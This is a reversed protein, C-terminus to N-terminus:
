TNFSGRRRARIREAAFSHGLCIGRLRSIGKNEAGETAFLHRSNNLETSRQQMQLSEAALFYM